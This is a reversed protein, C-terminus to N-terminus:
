NEIFIPKKKITVKLSGWSNSPDNCVVTYITTSTPNVVVSGSITGATDFNTGACSSAGAPANWTITVPDGSYSSVPNVSGGGTDGNIIQGAKDTGPPLPYTCPLPGGFNTAAPDQCTPAVCSSEPPTVASCSGDCQITGSNYQGCSNLGSICPNGQGAVCGSKSESCSADTHGPGSGGCTWTWASIGDVNDVSAGANCNYHSSACSGNVVAPIDTVTVNTWPGCNNGENVGENIVGGGASSTKDACARVSYTGTSTFTHSKSTTSNGGVVLTSMTVAGLDTITGGGGTATAVQFFNSFSAGTSATGINLVGASLSAVTNIFATTPSSAQATLDPAGTFTTCTPPNNAGNGCSAFTTCTPPNNANNICNGSSNVTCNPPNVAGNGCSGSTTTFIESSSYSTGVSNIAYAKVRYTTNSTLGTINGTWSGVGSPGNRTSIGDYNTISPGPTGTISENWVFGSSNVTAGGTSTIDGGGVASNSTISSVPSIIVTPTTVANSVTVSVWNSCNNGENSETASGIFSANNDACVRVYKTGSTTFTHSNSATTTWGASIGLTTSTATSVGSNHNLDDDYQFIHTIPGSATANGINSITSSYTQAVNPIASLPSPDGATLDPKPSLAFTVTVTCEATIAGTNYSFPSSQIVQTGGCGSATATYGSNPTVSFPTSSGYNITQLTSPSVVGNAGASIHVNIGVYGFTVSVTCDSNIQGTSYTVNSGTNIPAGGCGSISNIFRGADAVVNFTTGTGATVNRSTPSISGGAGISTSATYSSNVVTVNTWGSCNNGENSENVSDTTTDTNRNTKDACVRFSYIGAGSFTYSKTANGSADASLTSMSSSSLDTVTGGGDSSTAVQFFNNFPSGTSATGNNAIVATFTQAVGVTTTSTAPTPPSATLDPAPPVSVAVETYDSGFGNANSCLLTYRYIKATTLVGQSVNTGSIAKTGSWDGSATCSTPNNTASWTLSPNVSNATGSNPNARINVVPPPLYCVSGNWTTGEICSSSVITQDLQIGNNIIKFTRTIYPVSFSRSDSQPTALSSTVTTNASEGVAPNDFVVITSAKPNVVSWNLSLSCNSAGAIITCSSSTTPSISGSMVPILFFSFSVYCSGTIVGTQYTDGSWSGSPCTGGVSTSNNYGANPSVTFTTTNGYTVSRSAPSVSGNPGDTATVTYSVLTFSASITHNGSINSFTYSSVTGVSSGDVTVNSIKYNASPTITYSQNSGYSKTTVGSPSIFGNSGASATITYTNATFTAVPSNSTSCIFSPCSSVSYGTNATCSSSVTQGFTCNPPLASGNVATWSVPYTNATFSSVKQNIASCTFSGPCTSTSYGTNPVCQPTVTQGYTCSDPTISGNTETFYSIPYTNVACSINTWSGSLVGNTCIRSESRCVNATSFEYATISNGSAITGGFPSTCGNASWGATVSQGNLPMTSALTPSWGAFIYGSRTPNAPASVPTGYAQTKSAVASGGNSNFTITYQNVACSINTWSGSLVGNTCIRSESRCVNATSFEYATISNGSAITGGFPSTCGNATWMAYLTVNSTGMMYSVGNGYSTGSGMPSTNWGAFTYNTRTFGNLTLNASTGSTISQSSTSGGTSGNGNFTITKTNVACLKLVDNWTTNTACSAIATSQDLLIGYNYLFFTRPSSLYPVNFAKPGGSIGTALSTNASPYNSTITPLNAGTANIVNWSLNVNCSSAGASITCSTFSPTLTGFIFVVGVTCPATIAGTTYTFSSSKPTIPGGGCSGGVQAKYGANPTIVFSKTSNYDVTQVTNPSITGGASYYSLSVSYTNIAFSASITHNGTINSFTYSSINGFSVGDILVQSIKYNANPIISYAQSSGYTKSTNGIPTISGNAGASATITYTNSTFSAVVTCNATIFNTTYTAGSLSGGCTGGVSATYGTNPTVTFTARSNYSITQATSSSIAGNAGASPTVTYTKLTFIPIVTCASTIAGTTYVNTSTNFSGNTCGSSGGVVVSASYGANPTLTFTTTSGSNVTQSTPSISGGSASGTSVTYTTVTVGGSSLYCKKAVNPVPDGGFADNTCAISNTATKKAYTGNAGYWIEQTGSFSCTGGESACEAGITGGGTGGGTPPTSGSNDYACRKAVGYIPDGGFAANTCNTGNSFTGYSFSSNAGYRVQKTGSFSCFGGEGACDVYNAGGSIPLSSGSISVSSATGSLTAWSVYKSGDWFYLLADGGVSYSGAGLNSFTFSKSAATGYGYFWGSNQVSSGTIHGELYISWYYNTYVNNLSVTVTISGNPATGSGSSSVSITAPGATSSAGRHNAFSEKAFFSVVFFLVMSCLFVLKSIKNKKM